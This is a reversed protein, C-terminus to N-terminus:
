WKGYRQGLINLTLRMSVSFACKGARLLGPPKLEPIRSPDALFKLLTTKGMGKSSIFTAVLRKQPTIGFAWFRCIKEVLKERELLENDQLVGNQFLRVPAVFDAPKFASYTRVRSMIALKKQPPLSIFYANM